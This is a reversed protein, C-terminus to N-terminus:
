KSTQDMSFSDDVLQNGMGNKSEFLGASSPEGVEGPDRGLNDKDMEFEDNGRRPM